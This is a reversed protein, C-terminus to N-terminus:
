KITIALAGCIIGVIACIPIYMWPLLLIGAISGATLIWLITKVIRLMSDFMINKFVVLYNEDNDYKEIKFTLLDFLQNEVVFGRALELNKMVWAEVMQNDNHDYVTSNGGTEIDQLVPNVLFYLRGAWDRKCEVGFLQSLNKEINENHYIAKLVKQIRFFDRITAFM